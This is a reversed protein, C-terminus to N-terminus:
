VRHQLYLEGTDSGLVVHSRNNHSTCEKFLWFGTPPGHDSVFKQGQLYWHFRKISFIITLAEREIQAYNRKAVTLNLDYWWLILQSKFLRPKQEGGKRLTSPFDWWLQYSYPFRRGIVWHSNIYSIEDYGLWGHWNMSCDPVLGSFLANNSKDREMAFM